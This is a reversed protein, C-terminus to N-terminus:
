YIVSSFLAEAIVIDQPFTIKINTKEGDLLHIQEGSAEIVTADDSFKESYPQCYAKKISAAHFVQPTQVINYKERNVPWSTSGTILRISEHIPIVPIANGRLRATEFTAHILLPSILPRVGDHIAVLGDDPIVALANKVSHFRTDGGAILRHPIIFSYNRCLEKWSNFQDIPLVLFLLIDPYSQIFARLSHMLLPKGALLLFQKPTGANMRTGIGGAVIIATKKL